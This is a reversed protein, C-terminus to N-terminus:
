HLKIKFDFISTCAEWSQFGEWLICMPHFKSSINAAAGTINVVIAIMNRKPNPPNSPLDNANISDPLTPFSVRDRRSWVGRQHERFVCLRVLESSDSDARLPHISIVFLPSPPDYQQWRTTTTTTERNTTNKATLTNHSTSGIRIEISFLPAGTQFSSFFHLELFGIWSKSDVALRARM